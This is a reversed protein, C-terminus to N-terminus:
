QRCMDGPFTDSLRGAQIKVPAVNLPRGAM